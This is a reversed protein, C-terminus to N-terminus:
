NSSLLELLSNCWLDSYYAIVINRKTTGLYTFNIKIRNSPLLQKAIQPWEILLTNYGIAEELGLEYLESPDKLRYLDLHWIASNDTQYTQLLTFTPSVVEVPKTFYANIFFRAFSTKGCGVEGILLIIEGKTTIKTFIKALKALSSLDVQTLEIQRKKENLFIKM